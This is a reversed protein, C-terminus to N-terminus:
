KHNNKLVYGDADALFPYQRRVQELRTRSLQGTLMAAEAHSTALTEGLPDILCSDGVYSIGHGDTGIRNVAAVYCQNEIARARLLTNWASARSEPWNAVCVLLDYRSAPDTPQRLWVPFRLDYCITLAIKWGKLRAILRRDGASYHLQEDSFGFLHRKDYCAIRGNPLVWLLRNFYRGQESIILSGTLAARKERAKRKMWRVAEGEMTGALAVARMSFGTTFMEPLVILETGEPVADIQRDWSQLNAATDEWQLDSQLLTVSLDAM